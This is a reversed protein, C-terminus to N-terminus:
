ACALYVNACMCKCMSFICKCVNVCALYVNACMCKHMSIMCKYVNINALYVNACWINVWAWYEICRINVGASYIYIYIWVKAIDQEYGDM